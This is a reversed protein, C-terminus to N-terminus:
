VKSSPQNVWEQPGSWGLSEKMARLAVFGNGYGKWFIRDPAQTVVHPLIDTLPIM